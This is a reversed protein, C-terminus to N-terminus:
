VRGRIEDMYKDVDIGDWVKASKKRLKAMYAEYEPAFPQNLINFYEKQIKTKNTKQAVAPMFRSLGM